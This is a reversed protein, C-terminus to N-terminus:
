VEEKPTHTISELISALQGRLYAMSNADDMGHKVYRHIADLAEIKVLIVVTNSHQAIAEQETAEMLLGLKSGLMGAPDYGASLNEAHERLEIAAAHESATHTNM